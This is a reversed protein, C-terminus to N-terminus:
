AYPFCLQVREVHPDLVPARFRLVQGLHDPARFRQVQCALLRCGPLSAGVFLGSLVYSNVVCTKTHTVTMVVM